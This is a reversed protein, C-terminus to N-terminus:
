ATLQATRRLVALHARPVHVRNQQNAISFRTRASVVHRARKDECAGKRTKRLSAPFGPGERVHVRSESVCQWGARLRAVLPVLQAAAQTQSTPPRVRQCCRRIHPRGRSGCQRLVPITNPQQPSRLANSPQILPQSKPPATVSCSRLIHFVCLRLL